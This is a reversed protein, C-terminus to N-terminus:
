YPLFRVARGVQGNEAAPPAGPRRPRAALQAPPTRRHTEDLALGREGDLDPEPRRLGAAGRRWRRAQTKTPVNTTPLHQPPSWTASGSGPDRIPKLPKRASPVFAAMVAAVAPSRTLLLPRFLEGAEAPTLCYHPTSDGDEAITTATATM